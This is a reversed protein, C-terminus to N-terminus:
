QCRTLLPLSSLYGATNPGTGCLSLNDQIRDSESIDQKAKDLVYLEDLLVDCKRKKDVTVVQLQDQEITGIGMFPM